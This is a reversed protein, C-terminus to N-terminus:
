IQLRYELLTKRIRAYDPEYVAVHRWFADSHNPHKLHAIEHIIVYRLIEPSTFLLATSLTIVGSHSCSGWRSRMYKVTVRSIREQYTEANVRTVLTDLEAQVSKALLKWLFRHFVKETSTRGRRVSWGGTVRLAKTTDGNHFCFSIPMGFVPELTMAQNGALAPGFPHIRKKKIVNAYTKKMRQLLLQIHRKEEAPPLGRALRILIMDNRIVARSTRNNSRQIAYQIESM